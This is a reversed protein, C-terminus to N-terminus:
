LYEALWITHGCCTEDEVIHDIVRFGNDALLQQYEITDLSAHYLPEGCLTGIAEGYEHGSTFMLTTGAKAHASFLPFMARQDSHKLHFFSDWALIGDFAQGLNLACMDGVYWDHDPFRRQCIAIMSASIDVGALHYGQEIMYKTMPEGAGPGLELLSTGAMTAGLFRDLWAQEFLGKPREIDWRRANKEYQDPIQEPRATM